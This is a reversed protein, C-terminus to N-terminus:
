RRSAVIATAVVLSLAILAGLAGIWNIGTTQREHNAYAVFAIPIAVSLVIAVGRLGRRKEHGPDQHEDAASIAGEPTAEQGDYFLLARRGLQRTHTECAWAMAIMFTVPLLWTTLWIGAAIAMGAVARLRTGRSAQATGPEDSKEQPPALFGGFVLLRYVARVWMRLPRRREAKEPPPADRVAILAQEAADPTRYLGRLTLMEGATRLEGPDHGYLAAIRLGMRAEQWLYALYGPVLAIFFPTGAVAGDVRAIGASQARVEEAITVRPTDARAKRVGEAWERSPAALRQSAYLTLREAINEPDRWAIRTLSKTGSLTSAIRTAV